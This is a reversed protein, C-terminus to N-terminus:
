QGDFRELETRQEDIFARAEAETSPLEAWGYPSYGCYLRKDDGEVQYSIWTGQANEPDYSAWGEQSKYFDVTDVDWRGELAGFDATLILIPRDKPASNMRKWM